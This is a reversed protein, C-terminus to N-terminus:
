RAIAMRPRIVMGAFIIFAEGSPHARTSTQALVSTFIRRTFIGEMRGALTRNEQLTILSFTRVAQQGLVCCHQSCYINRGMRLNKYM